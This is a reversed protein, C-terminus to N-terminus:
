SGPSRQHRSLMGAMVIVAGGLLLGWSLSALGLAGLLLASCLPTAYALVALLQSDGRRFGEDWVFNGLALPVVGVAAAAGLAGLSPMVTPELAFHLTGCLVTSIACGRALVNASAEQAVNASAQQAVNASAQQAVNASAQQAVNASAQQAVNASAQQAVDTSVQQAVDTSVQQAVDTSVGAGNPATTERGESASPEHTAQSAATGQAPPRLGSGATLETSPAGRARKLRFVCYAAWSIGSLLALVAGTASLSLKGGGMLVVAGVFGLVLGVVQRARLTFLGLLAGAAVIEVPWLYSLLNAEAAPIYHTALIHFANSGSLGIACAIAPLNSSWRRKPSSSKQTKAGRELLALVVWGVAFAITLCEFAPIELSWLALAPWTAWLPIAFAGV